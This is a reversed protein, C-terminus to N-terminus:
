GGRVLQLWHNGGWLWGNGVLVVRLWRYGGMVVQLSEYGGMVM